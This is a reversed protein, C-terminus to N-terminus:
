AWIDIDLDEDDDEPIEIIRGPESAVAAAATSTKPRKFSSSGRSDNDGRRKDTNGPSGNPEKAWCDSWVHGSKGCKLCNGNKRRAAIVESDV